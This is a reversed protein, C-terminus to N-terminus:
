PLLSFRALPEYISGERRLHSEYLVFDQVDWPGAALRGQAALWGGAPGANRSLRALTVHPRFARRESALGARRCAAAVRRHLASLAESREVGAWLASPVGKREFHGVGRISVAFSPSRVSELQEVLLDGKRPDVEGLFALTVHLQADDQWRAGDVGGTARLLTERVEPPPRLAVFLRPM